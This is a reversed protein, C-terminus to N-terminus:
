KLNSVLDFIQTVTLPKGGIFTIGPRDGKRVSYGAQQLRLLAATLEAQLKSIVGQVADLEHALAM